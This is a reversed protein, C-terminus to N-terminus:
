GLGDGLPTYRYGLDPPLHRIILVTNVIRIYTLHVLWSRVVHPVAPHPRTLWPDLPGLVM